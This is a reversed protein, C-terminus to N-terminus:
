ALIVRVDLAAAGKAYVRVPNMDMERIEPVDHLLKSVTNIISIVAEQDLPPSNRFGKLFLGARTEEIMGIVEDRTMPVIGFVTDKIAEVWVGGLGIAVAPGFQDDRLGGILLELGPPMMEELLFYRIVADPARESITRKM